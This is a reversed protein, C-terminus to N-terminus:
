EDSRGKQLTLFEAVKVLEDYRAFLKTIKPDTSNSAAALLCRLAEDRREQMLRRARGTESDALWEPAPAFDSV